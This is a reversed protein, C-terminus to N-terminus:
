QNKQRGRNGYQGQGNGNKQGLGLEARIKDAAEQDGESELQHAQAFRAFNDANIVKTVRGKGQMLSLWAQYDNNLFAAEKEQHTAEDCGGTQKALAQQPFGILLPTIIAALLFMIKKM